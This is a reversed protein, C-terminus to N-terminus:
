GAKEKDAKNLLITVQEAKLGIIVLQLSAEPFSYEGSKYKNLVETIAAADM